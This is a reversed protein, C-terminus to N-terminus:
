LQECAYPKQVSCSRDQWFGNALVAACDQNSAGSPAGVAFNTYGQGTGSTTGKWALSLDSRLWRDPQDIDFLGIWYEGLGAGTAASRLAQGVTASEVRTLTMGARGCAVSADRFSLAATCLAFSKGGAQLCSCGAPCSFATCDPRCYQGTGGDDCREGAAANVHGDGCVRPSCDADCSATEGGDDCAEGTQIVADGCTRRPDRAEKCVFAKTQDCTCDNWGPLSQVESCNETAVFANPEGAAWASFEGGIPTGTAVGQWFATGDDWVWTGEPAGDTAGLHFKAFGEQQTRQRLYTHEAGSAIRVVRMGLAECAARTPAFALQEGCLM